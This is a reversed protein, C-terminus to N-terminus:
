SLICSPASFCVGTSSPRLTCTARPAPSSPLGPSSGSNTPLTLGDTSRAKMKPARGRCLLRLQSHSCFITPCRPRSPTFANASPAANDERKRVFGLAIVGMRGRAAQLWQQARQTPVGAFGRSPTHTANAILKEATLRASSDWTSRSVHWVNM